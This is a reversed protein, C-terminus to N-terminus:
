WCTLRGDALHALDIGGIVALVVIAMSFLFLFAITSLDRWKV